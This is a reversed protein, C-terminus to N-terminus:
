IEDSEQLLSRQNIQTLIATVDARTPATMLALMESRKIGFRKIYAKLHKRFFLVGAQEGYFAIM